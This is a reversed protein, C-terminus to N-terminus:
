YTRPIPKGAPNLTYDIGNIYLKNNKWFRITKPNDTNSGQELVYVANVNDLDGYETKRDLDTFAIDINTYMQRGLEQVLAPEQFLNETWLLWKGSNTVEPDEIIKYEWITYDALAPDDTIYDDIGNSM